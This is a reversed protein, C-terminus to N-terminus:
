FLKLLRLRKPIEAGFIAVNQFLFTLTRIVINIKINM